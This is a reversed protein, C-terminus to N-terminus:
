VDRSVRSVWICKAQSKTRVVANDKRKPIVSITLQYNYPPFKIVYKSLNPLNPLIIKREIGMKQFSKSESRAKALTLVGKYTM